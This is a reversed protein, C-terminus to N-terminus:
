YQRAQNEEEDNCDEKHCHQNFGANSLNSKSASLNKSSGTLGSLWPKQFWLKRSGPTSATRSKMTVTSSCTYSPLTQQKRPFKDLIKQLIPSVNFPGFYSGVELHIATNKALSKPPLFQHPDFPTKIKRSSSVGGPTLMAQKAEFPLIFWRIKASNNTFLTRQDPVHVRKAMAPATAFIKRAEQLFYKWPRKPVDQVINQKFKNSYLEIDNLWKRNLHGVKSHHQWEGTESNFEYQPLLKWGQKAVMELADLIYEIEEDPAFWPLSLRSFGPKIREFKGINSYLYPNM